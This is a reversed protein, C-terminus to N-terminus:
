EGVRIVDPDSYDANLIPYVYKGNGQDGWRTDELVEKLYWGTSGGLDQGGYFLDLYGINSFDAMVLRARYTKQQAEMKVFFVFMLGFLLIKHKM